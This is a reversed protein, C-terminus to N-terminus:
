GGALGRFVFWGIYCVYFAVAVAALLWARRAIRAARAGDHGDAGPVQGHRSTPRASTV